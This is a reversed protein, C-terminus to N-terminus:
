AHYIQLVRDAIDSPEDTEGIQIWHNSEDRRFWTIQRKAYRRTNRKLLRVMEEYDYAGELYSMPEQYGISRLAQTNNPTYGRDRLKRVEDLLGAGLMEDVRDSIREHLKSRDRNLVVTTYSFRPTPQHEHFYTLTRGTAYYVELARVIRQTKTPDMSAAAEPDIAELERYLHEAGGTEMRENLAQRVHAPVEPIDALGDKLAKIYLTSGGVLLPTTNLSMLSAIIAEVRGAYKGASISQELPLEDVMHHPIRERVDPSPKATGIDVTQYVQRSDVSIVEADLAKAVHHSVATKGVATPGAILLFPDTVLPIGVALATIAYFSVLRCCSSAAGKEQDPSGRRHAVAM